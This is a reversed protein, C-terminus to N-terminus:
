RHERCARRARVANPHTKSRGARNEGPFILFAESASNPDGIIRPNITGDDEWLQIIPSAYGAVNPILARHIDLDHILRLAKNGNHYPKLSQILNIADPGARDLHRREIMLGLDEPTRSFPFYVDEDSQGASRVLECASLDLASRLNHVIDGVIAGLSEPPGEIHLTVAFGLVGEKNALVASM